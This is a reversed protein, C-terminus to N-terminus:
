KLARAEALGSIVPRELREDKQSHLSKKICPSAVASGAGLVNCTGALGISVAV